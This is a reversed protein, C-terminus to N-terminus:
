RGEQSYYVLAAADFVDFDSDNEHVEIKALGKPALYVGIRNVTSTGFIRCAMKAYPALQYKHWKAKQGTKLDLVCPDGHWLGIRDPTGCIKYPETLMLPKEIILPEFVALKKFEAYCEVYPRVVPDLSDWDLDNEDLFQCARHVASGKQRALETFGFTRVLGTGTLVTTVSPIKEGAHKYIHGREDFEVLMDEPIKLETM